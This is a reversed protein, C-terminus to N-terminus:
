QSFIMRGLSHQGLMKMTNFYSDGQGLTDTFKSFGLLELYKDSFKGLTNGSMRAFHYPELLVFVSDSDFIGWSSIRSGNNTKDGCRKIAQTIRENIELFNTFIKSDKYGISKFGERHVSIERLEYILNIFNRFHDIHSKL